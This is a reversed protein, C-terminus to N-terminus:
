WGIWFDCGVRSLCYPHQQSSVVKIANTEVVKGERIGVIVVRLLDDLGEFLSVM